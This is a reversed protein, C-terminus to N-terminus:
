ALIDKKDEELMLILNEKITEFQVQRTFVIAKGMEDLMELIFKIVQIGENDPDIHLNNILDRAMLIDNCTEVQKLNDAIICINNLFVETQMRKYVSMEGYPVRLRIVDLIQKKRLASTRIKIRESQTM